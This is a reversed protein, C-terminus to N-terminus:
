WLGLLYFSIVSSQLCIVYQAGWFRWWETSCMKQNEGAFLSNVCSFVWVPSFEYMLSSMCHCIWVPSFEGTHTRGQILESRYSNEGTHTKEQILKRRHSNAVTPTWQQILERRHSNEGINEATHTIQQILERSCSNPATSLHCQTSPPTLPYGDVPKANSHYCFYERILMNVSKQPYDSSSNICPTNNLYLCM